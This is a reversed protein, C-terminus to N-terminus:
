GASATQEEDDLPSGGDRDRVNLREVMAELSFAELASVSAIPSRAAAAIGATRYEEVTLPRMGTIKAVAVGLRKPLAMAVTRQEVPQEDMPTLPDLAAAMDDLREVLEPESIDSAGGFRREIRDGVVRTGSQVVLPTRPPDDEAAEDGDPDPDPGIPDEEAPPDNFLAGVAELGEAIALSEFESVRSEIQRYGLLSRLDREVQERVEDLSEAPSRDRVDLVRVFSITGSFQNEIKNEVALVGRQPGIEADPNLEHVNMLFNGFRMTRNGGVSVSSLGIDPIQSLDSLTRWQGAYVNIKPRPPSFEDSGFARKYYSAMYRQLEDALEDLTPGAREAGDPIVVLGDDDRTLMPLVIRRVQQAAENVLEEARAERIAKRAKEYEVDRAARLEEDSLSEDFESIYKDPNSQYENVMERASVPIAERIADREITIVEFKVRPPRVYGIGFEGEGPEVSQYEEFHAQLQSQDIEGDFAHSGPIFVHDLTINDLEHKAQAVTVPVSLRPAGQYSGLMREVGRASALALNFQEVTLRNQAAVRQRLGDLENRALQLIDEPTPMEGGVSALEQELSAARQSSLQAIWAEGDGAEGIYGGEDAAHTLLIWHLADQGILISAYQHSGTVFAIFSGLAERERAAQQMDLTSVSKDGIYVETRKGLGKGYQTIAQPAVFVVMLVSAFIVLLFKQYRRLFKLM